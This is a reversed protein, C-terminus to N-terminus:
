AAISLDNYEFINVDSINAHLLRMLDVFFYHNTFQITSTVRRSLLYFDDKTGNKEIKLEKDILYISETIQNLRATQVKNERITFNEPYILGILSRKDSLDKDAYTENLMILNDVGKNLLEEISHKENVVMSLERELNTIREHYDEKM